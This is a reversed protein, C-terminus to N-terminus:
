APWGPGGPGYYAHEWALAQKRTTAWHLIEGCPRRLLRQVFRRLWGVPTAARVYWKQKRDCFEVHSARRVAIPGLSPWDVVDEWLGEVNGDAAICLTISSM